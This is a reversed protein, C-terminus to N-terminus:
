KMRKMTEEFQKAKKMEEGYKADILNKYKTKLNMYEKLNPYAGYIWFYASEASGTLAAMYNDKGM